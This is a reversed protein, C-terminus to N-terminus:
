KQGGLKQELAALRLELDGTEVVRVIAGALSAIATARTAPLQGDYCEQISKKLLALV